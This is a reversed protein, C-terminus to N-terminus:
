KSISYITFESNEKMIEYQLQLGKRPLIVYLKGKGKLAQKCLFITDEWFDSSLNEPIDEILVSDYIDPYLLSGDIINKLQFDIHFGSLLKKGKLYMKGKSQKKRM